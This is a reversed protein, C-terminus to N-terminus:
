NWDAATMNTDKSDYPISGPKISKKQQELQQSLKGAGGRTTQEQARRQAAGLRAQRDEEATATRTQQSNTLNSSTPASTSGYSQNSGQVVESENSCCNGM